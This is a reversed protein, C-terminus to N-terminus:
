VGGGGVRWNAYISQALQKELWQNEDIPFRTDLTKKAKLITVQLLGQPVAPWMDGFINSIKITQFQCRTKHNALKFDHSRSNALTKEARGNQVGLLGPSSSTADIPKVGM